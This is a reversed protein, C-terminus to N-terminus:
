IQYVVYSKKSFHFNNEGNLDEQSQQPAKNLNM